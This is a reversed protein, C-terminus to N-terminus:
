NSNFFIQISTKMQKWIIAFHREPKGTEDTRCCSCQRVWFATSYRCSSTVRLSCGRWRAGVDLSVYRCKFSVPLWSFKLEALASYGEISDLEVAPTVWALLSPLAVHECQPRTNVCLWLRLRCMIICVPLRGCWHWYQSYLDVCLQLRCLCM